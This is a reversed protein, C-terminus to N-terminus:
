QQYSRTEGFPITRLANWVTRQFPTGQPDLPLDFVRRRRDFYETLQRAADVLVQHGDEDSDVDLRVRHPRDNEWLVAALGCDSAVLTLRGVPSNLWRRVYRTGTVTERQQMTGESTRQLMAGGGPGVSAM